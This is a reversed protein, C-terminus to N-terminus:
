TASSVGAIVKRAPGPFIVEWEEKEEAEGWVEVQERVKDPRGWEM